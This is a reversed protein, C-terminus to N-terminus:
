LDAVAAWMPPILMVVCSAVLVSLVVIAMTVAPEDETRRHRRRGCKARHLM